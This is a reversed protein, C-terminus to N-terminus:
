SDVAELTGTLALEGTTADFIEVTVIDFVPEIEVPLPTQRGKAPDRFRLVLTGSKGKTAFAGVEFGDVVVRYDTNRTLRQATITLRQSVRHGNDLFFTKVKGKANPNTAGAPAVLDGATKTENAGNQAFGPGALLAVMLVLVVGVFLSHQRM